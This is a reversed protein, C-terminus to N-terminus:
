GEEEGTLARLGNTHAAIEEIVEGGGAGDKFFGIVGKAERKGRDDEVSGFVGELEGFVGLGRDQSDGDGGGADELFFEAVELRGEGGAVGEALVGGVDDGTGDGEGVGDAGNTVAATVHLLGDGGALAGHGGDEAQGGVLDVIEAALGHVLEGLLDGFADGLLDGLLGGAVGGFGVGVRGRASEALAWDTVESAVTLGTLTAWAAVVVPEMTEGALRLEGSWVTMEPARAATVRAASSQLAAPALRVTISGTEAGKWQERMFGAWSRREVSRSDM